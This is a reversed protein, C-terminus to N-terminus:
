RSHQDNQSKQCPLSCLSDCCVICQPVGVSQLCTWARSMVEVSECLPSSGVEVTLLTAQRNDPNRLDEPLNIRLSSIATVSSLPCRTVHMVRAEGNM